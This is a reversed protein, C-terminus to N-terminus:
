DATTLNFLYYKENRITHLHTRAFETRISNQLVLWAMYHNQGM